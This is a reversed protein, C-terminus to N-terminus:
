AKGERPCDDHYIAQPIPCNCTGLSRTPGGGNFRLLFVLIYEKEKFDFTIKFIKGTDLSFVSGFVGVGLFEKIKGFKNEFKEIDFEEIFKDMNDEVQDSVIHSRMVLAEFGGRLVSKVLQENSSENFRKLHKM